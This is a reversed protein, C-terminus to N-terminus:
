QEPRLVVFEPVGVGLALGLSMRMSQLSTLFSVGLGLSGSDAKYCSGQSAFADYPVLFM